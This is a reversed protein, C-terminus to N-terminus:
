KGTLLDYTFTYRRITLPTMERWGARTHGGARATAVAAWLTLATPPHLAARTGSVLATFPGPRKAEDGTFFM